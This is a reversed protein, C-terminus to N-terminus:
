AAEEVSCVVFAKTDGIYLERVDTFQLKHAAGEEDTYRLYSDESLLLDTISEGKWPMAVERMVTWCFTVKTTAKGDAGKIVLKGVVQHAPDLWTQVIDLDTDQMRVQESSELADQLVRVVIDADQLVDKEEVVQVPLGWRRFETLTEPPILGARIVATGIPRM